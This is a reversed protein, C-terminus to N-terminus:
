IRRLYLKMEYMLDIFENLEDYQLTMLSNLEGRAYSKKYAVNTRM